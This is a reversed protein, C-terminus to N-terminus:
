FNSHDTLVKSNLFYSSSLIRFSNQGGRGFRVILLDKLLEKLLEKMLLHKLFYQIRKTKTQMKIKM